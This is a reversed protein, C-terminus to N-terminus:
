DGEYRVVAYFSGDPIQWVQVHKHYNDLAWYGAFGSDEDNTVKFNINLMLVSGDPIGGNNLFPGAHIKEAPIANAMGIPAILSLLMTSSIALVIPLKLHSINNRITIM